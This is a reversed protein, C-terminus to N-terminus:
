RQRRTGPRPAGPAPLLVQWRAGERVMGLDYFGVAEMSQPDRRQPALRVRARAQRLALTRLRLDRRAFLLGLDQAATRWPWDRRAVAARVRPATQRSLFRVARTGDRRRVARVFAAARAEVARTERTAGTLVIDPTITTQSAAAGRNGHGVARPVRPAAAAPGSSGSPGMAGLGILITLSMRWARRM